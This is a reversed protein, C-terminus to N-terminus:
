FQFSLSGHFSRGMGPVSTGAKIAALNPGYYRGGLPLVYNRGTLNDIGADFRLRLPDAVRREYGTRLNALAYGPTPLELRAAQIREKRDVVEFDVASSWNGLHHEVAVKANLPVLRYLPQQGPSGAAAASTDTGHVYSLIGNLSFSGARNNGGLPMRGQSDVGFLRADYNGFQLTVYPVTALTALTANFRAATCGNGLGDESVPCRGADIYDQVYTLYPTLKLEWLQNVADHWGASVSLTNGVEPRLNLNGTYGNLDGFWGNMDVSMASQKVWMYREYLNPSRTKRAYGFEFTSNSNPEYRGLATLDFNHDRRAHGAANFATADAYYAASGTQTTRMCYAPEDMQGGCMNYGQANGTNMAVEDNRVGLSETWGKGHRGEWEVYTGFRNRRGGQVNWLTNPGMSGTMTMTAPWWDDLTVRHLETGTRLTDQASLPIEAKVSYGLNAGKTDMPMDMNSIQMKESLLNMTHGTREYFARADLKGWAFAGRYRLNLFRSENKLMDMHANVFGQEPIDQYGLGLTLLNNGRRAALQANYTRSKYLTSIVRAGAGSKYGAADVYTGTYSASYSQTAATLSADGGSVVGNTRHFATVGGHMALRQGAAAFEPEASDVTITGGLSDGGSSVPTIGSGVSFSGVNGPDIYSLPPNMHNSCQPALTMGNVLVKVRDDGLGHLSPLSSVGGNTSLDLGPVGTLLAATDSTGAKRGAFAEAGADPETVEVDTRVPAIKLAINAGAESGATVSLEQISAAEFGAAHVTVQYRGAPLADFVFRGQPNTLASRSFGSSTNTVEIQAGPVVAGSPDRLVGAIRGM